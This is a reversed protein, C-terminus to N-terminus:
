EFGGIGLLPARSILKKERGIRVAEKLVEVEETKMGLLRELRRMREQLKRLESKAVLEEQSGVGTLAGKEMARRWQYLQSPAI